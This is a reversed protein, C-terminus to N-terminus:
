TSEEGYGPRAYYAEADYCKTAYFDGPWSYILRSQPIPRYRSIKKKNRKWIIPSFFFCFLYFTFFLFVFM